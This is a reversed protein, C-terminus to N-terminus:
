AGDNGDDPARIKVVEPVDGTVGVRTERVIFAGRVGPIEGARALGREISRAVDDGTVANCVSTAAADALGATTAFVTAVDAEGFSLAPGIKASSSGIGVPFRSVRFGFGRGVPNPGADLHVTVPARSQVFVEGGNEVLALQWAVHQREARAIMAEGMLDALVGAVAAMPGVGAVDAASCMRVIVEEETDPVVPELATTFGPHGSAYSELRARHRILTEIAVRGWEERDTKIIGKSQGVQYTRM